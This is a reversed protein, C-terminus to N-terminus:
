FLHKLVRFSKAKECFNVYSSWCQNRCWLQYADICTWKIKRTENICTSLYKLTEFCKCKCSTVAAAGDVKLLVSLNSHTDGDCQKLWKATTQPRESIDRVSWRKKWWIFEEQCNNPTPLNDKYIEVMDDITVDRETIISLILVQM